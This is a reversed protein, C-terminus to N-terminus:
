TYMKNSWFTQLVGMVIDGKSAEGGVRALLCSLIRQQGDLLLFGYM